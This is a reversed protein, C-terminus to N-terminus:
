ISASREAATTESRSSTPESALSSAERITPSDRASSARCDRTISRKRSSSSPVRLEASGARLSDQHARGGRRAEGGGGVPPLRDERGRAVLRRGVSPLQEADDVHEVGGGRQPPREGLGSPLTLVLCSQDAVDDAILDRRRHHVQERTQDAAAPGPLVVQAVGDLLERD